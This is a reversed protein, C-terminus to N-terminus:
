AASRRGLLSRLDDALQPTLLHEPAVRIPQWGAASLRRSKHRDAGFARDNAHWERSDLEVAVRAARWVADCELHRGQRDLVVANCEPVPLGHRSVYPLFDEELPSRTFTTGLRQRALIARVVGVGKRRPHRDLVESLPVRDALERALAEEIAREVQREAVVAALDLLTRHLGTVPIADITGQEDDPVESEYTELGPRCRALPATVEIRARGDPRVGHLAAASRHSLVAGPGAALVAAMYRGKVTLRAHGVAYVGRHLVHLRGARVRHAIARPGFGLALLQRRAVVGHQREALRALARDVGLVRTEAGIVPM